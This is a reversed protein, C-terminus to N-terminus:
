KQAQALGRAPVTEPRLERGAERDGRNRRPVDRCPSGLARGPAGRSSEQCSLRGPAVKGM